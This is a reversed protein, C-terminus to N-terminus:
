GKNGMLLSQYDKLFAQLDADQKIAEAFVTVQGRSRLQVIMNSAWLQVWEPAARDKLWRFAAVAQESSKVRVSLAVAMAYRESPEDPFATKKGKGKLIDDISGLNKYIALFADFEAACAEGVASGVRMGLGHLKSAMEWSRPSPWAPRQPDLKHLLTPRYSLFALVQEHV